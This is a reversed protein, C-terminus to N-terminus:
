TNLKHMRSLLLLRPVPWLSDGQSCVSEATIICPQRTKLDALCEYRANIQVSNTKKRNQNRGLVKLLM